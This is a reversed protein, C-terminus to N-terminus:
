AQAPPPPCRPNTHARRAATTGPRACAWAWGHRTHAFGTQRSPSVGGTRCAAPDGEALPAVSGWPATALDAHPGAAPGLRACGTGSRSQAPGCSADADADPGAPGRAWPAALSAAPSAPPWRPRFHGPLIPRLLPPRCAGRSWPPSLGRGGPQSPAPVPQGVPSAAPHRPARGSGHRDACVDVLTLVRRVGGAVGGGLAAVGPAAEPALARVRVHRSVVAPGADTLGRAWPCGVREPHGRARGDEERAYSSVGQPTGEAVEPAPRGPGPPAPSLSGSGGGAERGPERRGQERRLQPAWQWRTGLAAGRAGLVCTPRLKKVALLAGQGTGSVPALTRFSVLVRSGGSRGGRGSRVRNRGRRPM